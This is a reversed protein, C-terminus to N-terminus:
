LVTVEVKTRSRQAFRKDFTVIEACGAAEACAAQLCDEFDSGSFREQALRITQGDMGAIEFAALFDSIAEFRVKQKLCFHYCLHVSLFSIVFQREEDALLRELGGMRSRGLMIELLVNADLFTRRM